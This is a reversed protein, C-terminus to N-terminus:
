GRLVFLTRPGKELSSQAHASAMFCTTVVAAYTVVWGLRRWGTAARWARVPHAGFAIASSLVLHLPLFFRCEVAVPVAALCPMLLAALVLWVRLGARRRRLKSLIVVLGGFLVTYNLWALPWTRVYVKQIYPSPYQLDLGNFLHRQWVGLMPLPHQLALALYQSKSGLQGGERANLLAAGSQDLFFMEAAPYDNGINTEYKQYQLGWSLQKLYLDTGENSHRALVWPTSVGFHHKNLYLQPALVIALSLVVAGRQAWADGRRIQGPGPLLALLGVFPLAALLVPRMNVAAGLAVGSLLATGVSRKSLLAWLATALAFLAPFDTLSFNFYDRWLAFGLLGFVLRRFLPVGPAAPAGVAQWLAPGLAGFLAAAMMAGLPRMLAIPSCDIHPGLIALPALLLPFFYGRMSDSFSLFQFAGTKGYQRGLEWYNNADYYLADYSSFPLYSGYLGLLLVVAVLGPKALALAKARLVAPHTSFRTIGM